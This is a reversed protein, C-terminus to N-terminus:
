ATVLRGPEVPVTKPDRGHVHKTCACEMSWVNSYRTNDGRLRALKAAGADLCTECILDLAIARRRCMQEFDLILKVEERSLAVEKKRAPAGDPRLLM